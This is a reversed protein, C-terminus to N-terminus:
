TKLKSETEDYSSTGPNTEIKGQKGTGVLLSGDGSLAM